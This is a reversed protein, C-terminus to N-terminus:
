YIPKSWIIGAIKKIATRIKTSGFKKLNFEFDVCNKLFKTIQDTITADTIITENKIKL